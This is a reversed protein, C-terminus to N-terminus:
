ASTELQLVQESLPREDRDAEIWADFEVQEEETLSDQFEEYVAEAEIMVDEAKSFLGDYYRKPAKEAKDFLAEAKKMIRDSIRSAVSERKRWSPTRVSVVKDVVAVVRTRAVYAEFPEANHIIEEIAPILAFWEGRIRNDDFKGHLAQEEEETGEMVALCRLPEANGTQLQAVRRCVDTETYGIKIPGSDGQQIFYIV